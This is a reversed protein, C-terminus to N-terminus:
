DRRGGQQTLAWRVPDAVNRAGIKVYLRSIDHRVASMSRGSRQAIEKYQDGAVLQDLIQQQRASLRTNTVM